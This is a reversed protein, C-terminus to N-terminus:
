YPLDAPNCNRYDPEPHYRFQVAPITPRGELIARAVRHMGDMVRGDLGLIVPYSLDVEQIHRAHEIVARVTPPHAQDFWYVTDVEGISDVAVDVVPLGESLRILRDVDWADLGKNGPWFHYQRRVHSVRDSTGSPPGELSASCRGVRRPLAKTINLPVVLLMWGLTRVRSAASSSTATRVGANGVIKGAKVIYITPPLTQPM